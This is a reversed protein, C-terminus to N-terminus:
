KESWLTRETEAASDGGELGGDSLRRFQSLFKWANECTHHRVEHGQNSVSGFVSYCKGDDSDFLQLTLTSNEREPDDLRVTRDGHIGWIPNEWSEKEELKVEYSKKVRNVQMVYKMRDLCKQAQFPLEPLPTIEGGVYFVPLVTDQNYKGIAEGYSNCGVEFTADMPAVAAFVKPYEQMMDWSKCGGMSFGSAYIRTEDIAYREKLIALMEMNETATSNLHNEVCILLFGYNAAVQYWGSVTAMCFASDGGGHFCLLLPAKRGDEMIGRNYYAVYGIRHEKTDRDDGRNDPSTKVTVFGPECIMGMQELDAEENLFGVMRRYKGTFERFDKRVDATERVLFHDLSGKLVENTESTNGISIVPIDRRQAPEPTVTLGELIVGAPTVDGPGYLGDGQVTKLCTGAIFDASAGWGYLYTRLVAGRIYPRGMKKAFRDYMIAAGDQYYQSIRSQALIRAYLDEPAEKWGGPGTPSFFVVSGAFESAIESFGKEDAFKKAEELSKRKEEFIMLYPARFGFNVIDAPQETVPLYVKAVFTECEQEWIKSGDEFVKIEPIKEM